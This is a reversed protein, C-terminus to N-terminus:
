HFNFIQSVENLVESDTINPLYAQGAMGCARGDDGVRGDGERGGRNRLLRVFATMAKTPLRDRIDGTTVSPMTVSPTTTACCLRPHLWRQHRCM